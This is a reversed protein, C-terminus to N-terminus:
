SSYAQRIKEVTKEWEGTGQAYELLAAGTKEKFELSPFSVFAWPVSETDERSMWYLVQRTLPDEISETDEFNKYPAIFGLEGTVYETGAESSFLWVLFDVAAQQKEAPLTSNVAYYTETGICLGQKEEDQAGMYIPLMKIKDAKVVNGKLNRIENYAWNGNQVMAAKGLAFETMSDSVSKSGLMTRETVSNNLYLDFINKFYGSYTFSFGEETDSQAESQELYYPINLLHTNWRWQNGSAFSTSAFVGEIGLKDKNKQMDETLERLASFTRVDEMSELDTGRDSLAFYRDTIEENYIIGYGEIALPLAYVRDNETIALKEDILMKYLRTDTLDACYKKWNKYGTPGNIIFISPPNSKTIESTLTQEYTDSAATTVKVKVGTAKEYVEAIEEFVSASEPKFNLFYIEQNDKNAATTSGPTGSPQNDKNRSCACLLTMLMAIALIVSAAKKM